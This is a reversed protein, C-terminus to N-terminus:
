ESSHVTAENAGIETLIGYIISAINAVSEPVPLRDQDFQLTQVGADYVGEDADKLFLWAVYDTVIGYVVGAKDLDAIIECGLLCQAKGKELDEKKAEVICVRKKKHKLVYAFRGEANLQVGKVDEEVEITVDGAFLICVAHLIPSIFQLRKAHVSFGYLRHVDVLQTQLSELQPVPIAKRPPSFNQYGFVQKVHNWGISSFLTSDKKKKSNEVVDALICNLREFRRKRSQSISPEEDM